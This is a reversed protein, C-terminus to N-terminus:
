SLGREMAPLLRDIDLLAARRRGGPVAVEFLGEVFSAPGAAVTAPPPRLGDVDISHVGLLADVEVAWARGAEGLLLMRSTTPRGEAPNLPPMELVVRLDVCLAVEGRVACLGRLHGARRHPIPRVVSLGDARRLNRAPIALFESGLAFVVVTSSRGSARAAIAAAAEGNVNLTAEDVPRDLLAHLALAHQAEAGASDDAARRDNAERRDQAASPPDQPLESM